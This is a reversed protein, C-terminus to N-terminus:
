APDSTKEKERVAQHHRPQWKDRLPKMWKTMGKVTNYAERAVRVGRRRGSTHVGPQPPREGKPFGHRLRNKQARNGM